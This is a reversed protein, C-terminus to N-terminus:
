RVQVYALLVFAGLWGGGFPSGFGSVLRSPVDAISCPYIDGPGIVVTAPGESDNVICGAAFARTFEGDWRPGSEQSGRVMGVEERSTGGILGWQSAPLM